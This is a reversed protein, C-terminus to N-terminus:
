PKKYNNNLENLIDQTVNLKPSQYLLARENFILDYGKREGYRQITEDIDQFIERVLKNRKQGLEDKADRDFEQLKRVKEDLLEQKKAKAQEALLALEDKLARIETVLAERDKEKQTGEEQLLKDNEQTKKYGDFVKAVDVFAYRSADAAIGGRPLLFGLGLMVISLVAFFIAKKM